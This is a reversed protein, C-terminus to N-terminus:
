DSWDEAVSIARSELVTRATSLSISALAEEHGRFEKTPTHSLEWVGTTAEM